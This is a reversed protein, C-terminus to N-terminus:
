EEAINGGVILLDYGDDLTLFRSVVERGYVFVVEVEQTTVFSSLENGGLKKGSCFGGGSIGIFAKPRAM